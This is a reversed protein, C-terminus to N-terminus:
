SPNQVQAFFSCPEEDVGFMYLDSSITLPPLASLLSLLSPVCSMASSIGNSLPFRSYCTILWSSSNFMCSCVGNVADLCCLPAFLTLQGCQLFMLDVQHLLSFLFISRVMLLLLHIAIFSVFTSSIFSFHFAISCVFLFFDAFINSTVKGVM